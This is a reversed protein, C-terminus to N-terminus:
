GDILVAIAMYIYIHVYSVRQGELYSFNRSETKVKVPECLNLLVLNIAFERSNDRRM